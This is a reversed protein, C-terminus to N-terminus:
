VHAAELRLHLVWPAALTPKVPIRTVLIWDTADGRQIWLRLCGKAFPQKVDRIVAALIRGGGGEGREHIQQTTLGAYGSIIGAIAM